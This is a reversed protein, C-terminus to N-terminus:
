EGVTNLAAIVQRKADPFKNLASMVLTVLAAMNPDALVNVSRNDLNIIPKVATTWGPNDERERGPGSRLWTKPDNEKIAVEANLRAIARAKCLEHWFLRFKDKPKHRQSKQQGLACWQEFSEKSIGCAEAAIHPFGGSIILACIQKQIAPTLKADDSRRGM